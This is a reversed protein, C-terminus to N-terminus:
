LDQGLIQSRENGPSLSCGGSPPQQPVGGSQAEDQTHTHWAGM